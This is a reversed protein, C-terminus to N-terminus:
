GHAVEDLDTTLTRDPTVDIMPLHTATTGNTGSAACKAELEDLGEILEALIAPRDGFKRLVMASLDAHIQTMGFNNIQLVNTVATSNLFEGSLRAIEKNVEIGVRGLNATANKDNAGSAQLFQRSIESRYLKLYDLTAVGEEAAAKALERIPVHQVHQAREEDTVHDRMHRFISWKSVGHKKALADASIGAIRAAEIQTREQHVCVHCARHKSKMRRLVTM